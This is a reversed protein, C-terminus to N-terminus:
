RVGSTYAHRRMANRLRIATDAALTQVIDARDARMCRVAIVGVFALLTVIRGRSTNSTRFNPHDILARFKANLINPNDTLMEANMDLLNANIHRFEDVMALMADHDPSLNPQYVPCQPWEYMSDALAHKICDNTMAVFRSDIPSPSPRHRVSTVDSQTSADRMRPRVRDNIVMGSDNSGSDSM